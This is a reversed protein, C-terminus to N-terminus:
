PQWGAFKRTNILFRNAAECDPRRHSHKEALAVAKKEARINDTQHSMGRGPTYVTEALFRTWVRIERILVFEVTM